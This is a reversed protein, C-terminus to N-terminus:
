YTELYIKQSDSDVSIMFNKLIDKGILLPATYFGSKALDLVLFYDRKSATDVTAGLFKNGGFLLNTMFLKGARSYGSIHKISVAESTQIQGINLREVFNRDFYSLQASTSMSVKVKYSINSDKESQLVADVVFQGNFNYYPLSVAKNSIAPIPKGHPYLTIIENKRDLTYSYGNFFGLGIVAVSENTNLSPVVWATVNTLELSGFKFLPILAKHGKVYGSADLIDEAESAFKVGCEKAASPSLYILDGDFNVSTFISKNNLELSITFSDSLKGTIIENAGSQIKAQINKDLFSAPVNEAIKALSARDQPFSYKSAFSQLRIDSPYYQLAEALFSIGDKESGKAFLLTILGSVAEVSMKKQMSQYYCAMAEDFLGLGVCSKALFLFTEDTDGLKERFEQSLEYAKNFDKEFLAKELNKKIEATNSSSSTKSQLSTHKETENAFVNLRYSFCTILTLLAIKYIKKM